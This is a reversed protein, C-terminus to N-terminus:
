IFSAETIEVTKKKKKAPQVSDTSPTEKRKKPQQQQKEQKQQSNRNQTQTPKKNTHGSAQTHEFSYYVTHDLTLPKSTKQVYWSM